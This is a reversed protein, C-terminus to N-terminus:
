PPGPSRLVPSIGGLRWKSRGFGAISKAPLGKRTAVSSVSQTAAFPAGRRAPTDDNPM